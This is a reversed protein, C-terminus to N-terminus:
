GKTARLLAGLAPYHRTNFSTDPLLTRLVTGDAGFQWVVDHAPIDRTRQESYLNGVAWLTGKGAFAIQHAAFPTTRVIKALSGSADFWAILHAVKGDSTTASASIALLGDPSVAADVIRTVSVYPSPLTLSISKVREGSRDFLWVNALNPEFSIVYGNEFKPIPRDSIDVSFAHATGNLRFAVVVAAGIGALSVVFFLGCLNLKNM